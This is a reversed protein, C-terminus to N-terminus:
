QRMSWRGGFILGMVVLVLGREIGTSRLAFYVKQDTELYEIDSDTDDAWQENNAIAGDSEGDNTDYDDCESSSSEEDNNNMASTNPRYIPSLYHSCASELSRVSLIGTALISNYHFSHSLVGSALDVKM